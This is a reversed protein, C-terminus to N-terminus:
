FDAGAPAVTLAGELATIADQVRPHNPFEKDIQVGGGVATIAIAKATQIDQGDMQSVKLLLERLRQGTEKPDIPPAPEATPEIPAPAEPIVQPKVEGASPAVNVNAQAAKMDKISAHVNVQPPKNDETWGPPPTNKVLDAIARILDPNDTRITLEFM